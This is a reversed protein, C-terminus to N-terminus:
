CASRVTSSKTGAEISPTVSVRTAGSQGKGSTMTWTVDAKDGPQLFLWLQRVPRGGLTHSEQAEDKAGNTRIEDVAGGVPGFVQVNVIQNGPDIGFQGGGTVYEPLTRGADAPATSTVTVRGSLRQTGSTCSAATVAADYRLFYSM